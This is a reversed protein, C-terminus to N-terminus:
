TAFAHLHHDRIRGIVARDDAVDATRASRVSFEDFRGAFHGLLLKGIEKTAEKLV